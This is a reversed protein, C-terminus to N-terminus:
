AQIDKKNVAVPAIDFTYEATTGCRKCEYQYFKLNDLLVQEGVLSDNACIDVGCGKCFIKSYSISEDLLKKARLITLRSPRRRREVYDIDQANYFSSYPHNEIWVETNGLMATFVEGSPYKIIAFYYKDMLENLEKDWESSFRNLMFWYSPRFIFQLNLLFKIM